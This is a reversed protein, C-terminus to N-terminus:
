LLLFNLLLTLKQYFIIYKKRKEIELKGIFESPVVAQSARKGTVM